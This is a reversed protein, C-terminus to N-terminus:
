LDNLSTAAKYLDYECMAEYKYFALARDEEELLELDKDSPGGQVKRQSRSGEDSRSSGQGQASAFDIMSSADDVQMLKMLAEREGVSFVNKGGGRTGRFGRAYHRRFIHITGTNNWQKSLSLINDAPHISVYSRTQTLTHNRLLPASLHRPQLICSRCQYDSVSCASLKTVAASKIIAAESHYYNMLLRKLKAYHQKNSHLGVTQIRLGPNSLVRLMAM